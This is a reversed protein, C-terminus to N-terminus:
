HIAFGRLRMPTNAYSCPNGRILRFTLSPPPCVRTCSYVIGTPLSDMLRGPALAALFQVVLLILRALALSSNGTFWSGTLSLRRPIIPDNPHHLIMRPPRNRQQQGLLAIVRPERQAVV